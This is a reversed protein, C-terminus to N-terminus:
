SAKNQCGNALIYAVIYLYGHSGNTNAEVFLAYADGHRQQILLQPCETTPDIRGESWRSRVKENIKKLVGGNLIEVLQKKAAEDAGACSQRDHLLDISGNGNDFIARAGWAAVASPPPQLGWDLRLQETM